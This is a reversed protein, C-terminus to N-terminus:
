DTPTLTESQCIEISRQYVAGDLVNKLLEIRFIASEARGFSMEAAGFEGHGGVQLQQQMLGRAAFGLFRDLRDGDRQVLHSPPPNVTLEPAAEVALAVFTGPPHRMEFFNDEVVGLKAFGEALIKM